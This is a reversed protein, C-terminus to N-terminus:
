EKVSRTVFTDLSKIAARIDTYVPLGHEELISVFDEYHHGANVSVVMPKAHKRSLEVLRQALGDADRCTEPITKLAVAHPVIAVFVCDVNEDTLIAEVFEAYMRDDAMPTIDLFPSSTDV